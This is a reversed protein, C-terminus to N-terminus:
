ESPDWPENTYFAVSYWCKELREYFWVHQAFAAFRGPSHKRLAEGLTDTPDYVLFVITDTGAFGWGDWEMYRIGTRPNAPLLQVEQKYHGSGVLWRAWPRLHETSLFMLVSVGLFGLAALVPRSSMWRKVFFRRLVIGISLVIAPLILVLIHGISELDFSKLYLFPLYLVFGALAGVSLFSWLHRNM